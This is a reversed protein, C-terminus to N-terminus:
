QPFLPSLELRLQCKSTPRGRGLSLLATTTSVPPLFSCSQTKKDRDRTFLIWKILRLQQRGETSCGCTVGQEARRPPPEFCFVTIPATLSVFVTFCGKLSLPRILETDTVGTTQGKVYEKNKLCILDLSIFVTTTFVVPRVITVITVITVIWVVFCTKVVLRQNFVSSTQKM